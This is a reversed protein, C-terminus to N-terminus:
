AGPRRDLVESWLALPRTVHGLTSSVKPTDCTKPNSLPSNHIKAGSNKVQLCVGGQFEHGLNM